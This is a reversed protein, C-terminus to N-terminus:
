KNKSEKSQPFMDFFINNLGIDFLMSGINGEVFKIIQPRVHLDKTWRPKNKYITHSLQGTQNKQMYCDLKGLMIISSATKRGNSM